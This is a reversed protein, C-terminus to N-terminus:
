PQPCDLKAPSIESAPAHDWDEENQFDTAGYLGCSQDLKFATAYPNFAQELGAKAEELQERTYSGLDTDDFPDDELATGHQCAAIPGELENKEDNVEGMEEDSDEKGEGEAEDVSEEEDDVEM